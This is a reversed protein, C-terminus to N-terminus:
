VDGSIPKYESDATAGYFRFRAPLFGHGIRIATCCTCLFFCGGCVFVLGACAWVLTTIVFAFLYFPKFCFNSVDPSYNPPYVSYVWVSGAIFWCFNFLYLLGLCTSAFLFVPGDVWITKTYTLTLTILSVSGLVIMYIPIYPEAPCSHLHIAGTLFFICKLNLVFLIFM